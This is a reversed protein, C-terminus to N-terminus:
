GGLAGLVLSTPDLGFLIRAADEILPHAVTIHQGVVVVDRQCRDLTTGARNADTGAARHVEAVARISAAVANSCAIQVRARLEPTVRQEAAAVDWLETVQELVFARAAGLDAEATGLAVHAFSRERLPTGTLRPTKTRALEVFADIAARAIGLAVGTKNYALRSGIPIHVIRGLRPDAPVRLGPQARIVRVEPVFVDAVEVDHSGSGRMGSTNWTDHIQVDAMPVVVWGVAADPPEGIQCLGCFWNANHCGSVFPWRGRVRVGGDALGAAGLTATSGCLIATPDAYLEAVCDPALAVLSSTEIGIMLNWGAAGDARSIAEIVQIQVSPRAGIGGLATPVATRYLGADAMARAVREPLRRDRDGEAAAERVLPQLAVAISVPDSGIEDNM